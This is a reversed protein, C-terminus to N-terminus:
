SRQITGARTRSSSNGASTNVSDLREGRHEVDVLPDVLPIGANTTEGHQNPTADRCTYGAFVYVYLCAYMFVHMCVSVFAHVCKSVDERTRAM